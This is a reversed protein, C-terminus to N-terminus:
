ISDNPVENELKLEIELHSFYEKAVGGVSFWKVEKSNLFEVEIYAGSPLRNEVSTFLVIQQQQLEQIGEYENPPSSKFSIRAPFAKARIRKLTTKKSEPDFVKEMKFLTVNCNPIETRIRSLMNTANKFQNLIM